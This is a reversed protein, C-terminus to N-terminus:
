ARTSSKFWAETAHDYFRNWFMGFNFWNRLRSVTASNGLQSVQFKNCGNPQCCGQSMRLDISRFAKVISL